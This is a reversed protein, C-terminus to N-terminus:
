SRLHALPLGHKQTDGDGNLKALSVLRTFRRCCSDAANQNPM